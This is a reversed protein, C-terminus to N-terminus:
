VSSCILFYYVFDYPARWAFVFLCVSTDDSMHPCRLGLDAQQGSVFNPSCFTDISLLHGSSVKRMCPIFIFTYVKRMSSSVNANPAAWVCSSFCAITVTKFLQAPPNLEEKPFVSVLIMSASHGFKFKGAM